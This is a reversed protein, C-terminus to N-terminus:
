EGIDHASVCDLSNPSIAPGGNDGPLIGILVAPRKVMAKYSYEGGQDDQVNVVVEDYIPPSIRFLDAM